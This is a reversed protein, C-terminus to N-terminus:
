IRQVCEVYNYVLLISYYLVCVYMGIVTVTGATDSETITDNITFICQYSTNNYTDDVPGVSLYSNNADAINNEDKNIFIKFTLADTKNANINVARVTENRIVDGNNSRKIIRWISNQGLTLPDPVGAFGCPIKANTGSCVTVNRPGDTIVLAM